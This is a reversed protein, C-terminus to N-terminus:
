WLQLQPPLRSGNRRRRVQCDGAGERCRQQEQLESERPISVSAYLLSSHVGDGCWWKNLKKRCYFAKVLFIFFSITDLQSLAGFLLSFFLPIAWQFISGGTLTEFNPKNRFGGLICQEQSFGLGKL